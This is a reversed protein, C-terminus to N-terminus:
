SRRTPGLDDLSKENMRWLEVCPFKNEYLAKGVVVSDVGVSELEQLKLLDQYSSVGGSATVRLGTQVAFERMAEANIGKLTGDRSIDTYIVRAVGSTKLKKGLEISSIGSSDKWGKIRVIGDLMDIGVVIRRAGFDRLLKLLLDEDNVAATGIIVRYIGTSIAQEVDEYTRLGGGFEVPIDVADVISKLAQLNKPKGEFAGDLDVVHLAKFNEGRWIIAMKVPDDSYIKETGAEGKILRVCKGQRLDIAPIVLIM